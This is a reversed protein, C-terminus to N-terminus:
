VYIEGKNVEELKVFLLQLCEVALDVTLDQNLEINSLSSTSVRQKTCLRPSM